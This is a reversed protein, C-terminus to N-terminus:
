CNINVQDLNFAAILTYGKVPSKNYHINIRGLSSLHFSYTLLRPYKVSQRPKRNVQRIRTENLGCENVWGKYYFLFHLFNFLLWENMDINFHKRMILICKFILKCKNQEFLKQNKGDMLM